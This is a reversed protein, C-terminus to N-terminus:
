RAESDVISSTLVENEIAPTSHAARKKARRERIFIYVVVVFQLVNLLLFISSDWFDPSFSTSLFLHAAVGSLFRIAVPLALFLFTLTSFLYGAAFFPAYWRAVQRDRPYWLEEDEIKNTRGLLRNFRNLIYRRTTQQLDVCRFANTVVYYLDTQLYFYFQWIFRLMTAFALGLFLLGPFSYPVAPNYTFSALIILITMWLVDGLMGALFPLYRAKRPVSWLGTLHTEFVIFYLRRGIGMRSPIGLRQGALMHFGEHFLIGPFQAFFLVLEIVTFYPSFFIHSYSLRLYPFRLMLYGCYGIMLAYIIWAVPSFMAKGLWQWSVTKAPVLPADAEAGERLFQLDRLTELFDAIDIPEGYQREYWEAAEQFAMGAQLKKLLEAGDEPFTAFSDIDMRGIVVDPEDPVFTLPYFKLSSDSIVYSRGFKALGLLSSLECGFDLPTQASIGLLSEEGCLGEQSLHILPKLKM